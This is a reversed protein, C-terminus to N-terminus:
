LAQCRSTTHYVVNMSDLVPSSVVCLLVAHGVGDLLGVDLGVCAAKDLSPIHNVAGAEDNVREAELSIGLVPDFGAGSLVAQLGGCPKPTCQRM